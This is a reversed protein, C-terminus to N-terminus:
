DGEKEGDNNGDEMANRRYPHLPCDKIRCTQVESRMNGCCDMCKRRIAALLDTASVKKAVSDIKRKRM